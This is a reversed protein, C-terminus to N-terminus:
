RKMKAIIQEPTRGNLKKHLKEENNGVSLDYVMIYQMANKVQTYTVDGEKDRIAQLTNEVAEPTSFDVPQQMISAGQQNSEVSTKTAQTQTSEASEEACATILFLAATGTALSIFIHKLM